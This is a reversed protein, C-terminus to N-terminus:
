SRTVVRVSPCPCRAPSAPPFALTELWLRPCLTKHATEGGGEKLPGPKRVGGRAPVMELRVYPSPSLNRLLDPSTDTKDLPPRQGARHCM